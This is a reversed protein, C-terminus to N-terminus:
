KRMGREFEKKILPITDDSFCTYSQEYLTDAIFPKTEIDAVPFDAPKHMGKVLFVLWIAIGLGTLILGTIRRNVPMSTNPSHIDGSNM